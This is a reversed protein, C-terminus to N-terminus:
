AAAYATGYPQLDLGEIFPPGPLEGKQRNELHKEVAVHLVKDHDPRRLDLPEYGLAAIMMQITAAVNTLMFNDEGILQKIAGDVASDLIKQPLDYEHAAPRGIGVGHMKDLAKVMGATTRLGGTIYAKTKKLKPIVMEAFEIFYAERKKTSERRHEFALVEYTGGSLEVWDFNNKELEACLVKCDEVTFGGKQFEASNLKIGISFSKDPVRARIADTIEFIIRARNALSGGYEDTRLNTSPALFQALLYGHAAHLEVGDFGAKYCYEAAHAFSNIIHDFDAKEMPRPKAFTGFGAVELQVDSPSVPHPQIMEQVQRGPHSLQTYVLSGHAKAASAIEKFREFREGSFPAGSPIIHNGIGELQDYEIMTNGLLIVGYGGAGWLRYLNVLEKPPIGRKTLDKDDWSSQLESMAAKMFRNKATKGSFEFALPQGLPAPDIKEPAEAM